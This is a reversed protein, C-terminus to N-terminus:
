AAAWQVRSLVHTGLACVCARVQQQAEASTAEGQPEDGDDKKYDHRIPRRKPKPKPGPCCCDCALVLCQLMHMTFMFIAYCVGYVWSRDYMTPKPNCKRNLISWVFAIHMLGLFWCRSVLVVLTCCTFSCWCSNEMWLNTCWVTFTTFFCNPNRFSTVLGLAIGITVTVIAVFVYSAWTPIGYETTM